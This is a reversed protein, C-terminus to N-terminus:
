AAAGITLSFYLVTLAAAYGLATISSAAVVRSRDLAADSARSLKTTVLAAIVAGVVFTIIMRVNSEKGASAHVLTAAGFSFALFTMDVPFAILAKFFDVLRPSQDVLLRFLFKLLLVSGPLLYEASM